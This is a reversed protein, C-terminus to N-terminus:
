SEEKQVVVRRTLLYISLSLHRVMSGDTGSGWLRSAVGGHVSAALNTQREKSSSHLCQRYLPHARKPLPLSQFPHCMRETFQERVAVVVESM